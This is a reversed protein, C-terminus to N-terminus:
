RRSPIPVGLKAALWAAMRPYIDPSDEAIGVGHGDFEQYLQRDARSAAEALADTAEASPTDGITAIFLVPRQGFRRMPELTGLGHYSVGPSIMVLAAVMPEDASAILAASSGISSGVVGIKEPRLGSGEQLWVLSARVDEVTGRWEADSFARYSVATTGKHTSAGHGRLDIALVSVEARRRLVGVFPEWERRSSGLQHVLLVAPATPERARWLWGHLEVGDSTPFSVDRKPFPLDETRRVPPPSVKPAATKAPPRSRHPPAKESCGAFLTLALATRLV